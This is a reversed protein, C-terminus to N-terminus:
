TETYRRAEREGRAYLLAWVVFVSVLWVSLSALLWM